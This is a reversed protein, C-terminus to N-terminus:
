TRATADEERDRDVRDRLLPHACYWPEGNQYGLVLRENLLEAVIHWADESALPLQQTDSVTRLLALQDSPIPLLTNRVQQISSDVTPMDVPLVEAQTILEVALGLLM